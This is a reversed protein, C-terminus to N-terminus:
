GSFQGFLRLRYKYSRVSESHTNFYLDILSRFDRVRELLEAIVALKGFRNKLDNRTVLLERNYPRGAEFELVSGIYPEIGEVLCGFQALAQSDRRYPHVSRSLLRRICLDRLAPWLPRLCFIQSTGRNHLLKTITAFGRISALTSTHQM